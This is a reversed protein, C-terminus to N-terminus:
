ASRVSLGSLAMDIRQEIAEDSLIDADLRASFPAPTLGSAVAATGMLIPAAVSGALFALAQMVPMKRLVAENQGALILGVIVQVHRPLNSQLFQAALAEGSLADLVIRLLLRRHDRGFRAIVRVASRLSEFSTQQREV